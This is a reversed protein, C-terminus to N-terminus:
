AHIEGGRRPACWLEGICAAGPRSSAGAAPYAEDPLPCDRPRRAAAAAGPRAGGGPHGGRVRGVDADLADHAALPREDCLANAKSFKELDCLQDFYCRLLHEAAGFNAATTSAFDTRSVQTRLSFFSALAPRISEADQPTAGRTKLNTICFETLDGIDTTSNPLPCLFPSAM